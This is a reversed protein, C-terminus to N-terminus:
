VPRQFHDTDPQRPSVMMRTRQKQKKKKEPAGRYIMNDALIALLHFPTKFM